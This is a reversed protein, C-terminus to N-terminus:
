LYVFYFTSLVYACVQGVALKLFERMQEEVDRISTLLRGEKEWTAKRARTGVFSRLVDKNARMEEFLGVLMKIWAGEMESRGVPKAGKIKGDKKNGGGKGGEVGGYYSDVEM